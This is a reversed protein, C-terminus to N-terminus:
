MGSKLLPVIKSERKKTSSPLAIIPKGKGDHGEAAGRIFDVQGGFGSYMRTGISDSSVQGTLDVEICSNIATMKPQRAIIGILLFIDIYWYVITHCVYNICGNRLLVNLVASRFVTFGTKSTNEHFKLNYLYYCWPLYIAAFQGTWSLINIM